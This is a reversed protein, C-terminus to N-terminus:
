TKFGGVSEGQPPVIEIPGLHCSMKSSTVAAKDSTASVQEFRKRFRLCRDAPEAAIVNGNRDLSVYGVKAFLGKGLIGYAWRETEPGHGVSSSRGEALDFEM